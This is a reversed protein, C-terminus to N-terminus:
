MCIVVTSQKYLDYVVFVSEFGYNLKVIPIYHM